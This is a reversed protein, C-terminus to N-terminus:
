PIIKTLQNEVALASALLKGVTLSIKLNLIQKIIIIAKISKKLVNIVQLYHKKEVSKKITSSNNTDSKTDSMASESTVTSSFIAIISILVLKDTVLEWEGFRINKSTTNEIM